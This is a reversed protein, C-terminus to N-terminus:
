SWGRDVLAAKWTESTTLLEDSSRCVQSRRLDNADVVLFLEWGLEHAKLECRAERMGGCGPKGGYNLTGVTNSTEINIAFNLGFYEESVAGPLIDGPSVTVAEAPNFAASILLAAAAGLLGIATREPSAHQM